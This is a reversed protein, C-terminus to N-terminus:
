KENQSSLDVTHKLLMAITMPGVGGPVPTIYSCKEEVFKFNVDGTVRYGNKKTDDKVPNIGVDIVVANEKVYESTIFEKCGCAVVLIDGQSTIKKLNKTKTHCVMVTAERHLFMLSMPLGVVNSKGVVVVNKGEIEVNYRDLLEICGEPTCPRIFNDKRNLALKGINEQHFGDVDKKLVVSNIVKEENIHKPLPLQILIGHVEPDLNMKNVEKIIEEETVNEELYIDKNKIGIELCSKRKMNVYTESDKRKGVLIIGLCPNIGKNKLDNVRVSLEKKIDNAIKKGDLVITKVDNAIKKGDLIIM